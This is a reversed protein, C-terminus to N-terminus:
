SEKLIRSTICNHIPKQLFASFKSSLVGILTAIFAAFSLKIMVFLIILLAFYRILAFKVMYRSAHNSNMEVAKKINVFMMSITLIGLFTGMVAGALYWFSGKTIIMGLIASIVGCLLIGIVLDLYTEDLQRLKKKM